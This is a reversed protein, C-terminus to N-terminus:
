LTYGAPVKASALENKGIGKSQLDALPYSGPSLTASYGGQEAHQFVTVGGSPDALTLTKTPFFNSIEVRVNNLAKAADAQQAQGEPVGCPVGSCTLRPNSYKPIRSTNFVSEYAMITSFKNDVGYGLGYAYRVGTTKGQRRSHNLGMAHGLEHAMTLAGCGAGVVAFADAKNVALAGVGCAGAKSIQVVYDAGVAARRAAVSTNNLVNWLVASMDASTDNNAMVGVLRWQIDVKSNANVTNMQAVWGKMATAVQKNFYTYSYNDYTVLLDVQVASAQAAILAFPLSALLPKINM